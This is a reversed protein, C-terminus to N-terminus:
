NLYVIALNLYTAFSVWLLYPVFLYGATRDLKFFLYTLAAIHALLLLIVVLASFPDHLGFFIISWLANLVLHIAYLFLAFTRQPGRHGKVYVRWAAIAMLTYLTTWVPAFIWNPPSLEPKTLTAYWSDIAPMTFFSGIFGAAYALVLSAVLSLFRSNM